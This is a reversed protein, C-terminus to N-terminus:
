GAQISGAEPPSDDPWYNGAFSLHMPAQCAQLQVGAHRLLELPSHSGTPSAHALVSCASPSYQVICNGVRCQLDQKDHRARM